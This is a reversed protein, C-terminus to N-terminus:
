DRWTKAFEELLKSKREAKVAMRQFYPQQDFYFYSQMGLGCGVAAAAGAGLRPRDKQWLLLQQQRLQLLLDQMGLTGDRSYDKEKLEHGDDVTGALRM